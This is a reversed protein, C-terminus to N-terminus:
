AAAREQVVRVGELVMATLLRAHAELEAGGLPPSRLAAEAIMGRLAEAVPDLRADTWELGAAVALPQALAIRLYVIRQAMRDRLAGPLVHAAHWLVRHGDRELGTVDRLLSLILDHTWAAGDGAEQNRAIAENATKLLAETHEWLIDHLLFERRRFYYQLLTPGLDAARGVDTLSVGHLGREAFMEAAMRRIRQILANTEPRPKYKRPVPLGHQFATREEEDLDPPPTPLAFTKPRTLGPM